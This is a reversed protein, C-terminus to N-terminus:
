NQIKIIAYTSAVAVGLHVMRNMEMEIQYDKRAGTTDENLEVDGEYGLKVISEGSKIRIFESCKCRERIFQEHKWM